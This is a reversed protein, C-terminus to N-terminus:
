DGSYCISMSQTYYLFQIVRDAARQHEKSPNQNFQILRSVAFAIDPRTTVATYLLLGIKRQYLIISPKDAITTTPLLKTAAMPTNPLRRTLDIKYQNAIKKIYAEQSLWIKQLRRDRLM